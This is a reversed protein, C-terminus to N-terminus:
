NPVLCLHPFNEAERNEANEPIEQISFCKLPNLIGKYADESAKRTTKPLTKLSESPNQNCFLPTIKRSHHSTDSFDLQWARTTSNSNQFNTSDNLLRQDPIGDIKENSSL